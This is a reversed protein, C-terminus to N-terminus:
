QGPGMKPVQCQAGQGSQIAGVDIEVSDGFESKHSEPLCILEPFYCPRNASVDPDEPFFVEQGM